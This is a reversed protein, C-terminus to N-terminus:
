KKEAKDAKDAKKEEEVEDMWVGLDEKSAIEFTDGPEVIRGNYYGRQNAKVKM